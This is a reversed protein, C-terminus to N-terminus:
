VHARGIEGLVGKQLNIWFKFAGNILVLTLFLTSLGLLLELRGVSFGSFLQTAGGGAWAPWHVTIDLFSTTPNGKEFAKGTIADNVIRRPLDLSAFYFPLSALVVLCIAVQDRRSYRWIYGFLSPELDRM